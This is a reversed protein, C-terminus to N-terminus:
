SSIGKPFVSRVPGREAMPKISNSSKELFPQLILIISLPQYAMLCFFLDLGENM